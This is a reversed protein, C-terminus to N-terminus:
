GRQRRAGKRTETEPLSVREAEKSGEQNRDRALKGERGAKVRVAKKGM